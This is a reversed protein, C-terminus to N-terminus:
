AAEGESKAASKKRELVAVFFGDTDHRAPTLHMTQGDIGNPPEGGLAERWVKDLPVLVFDAHAALFNEVQRDNEDPLLSCTAYVLRGGPKVLRSAEALIGAQKVTLEDIDQQTLTWRADPNRRWTGTGSCPADVLVRDFSGASRKIWKRGTADLPRQTVNHVGARRLRTIARELRPASIDCAVLSGKNDMGAALALTKGGAGACFDVVRMGPRAGALLAVLQSGEDQIEVLGSKFAPGTVLPPRGTARLGLPSLRAPQIEIQEAKLAAMAQDRDGKLTNIRLDLPAPQRLAKYEAQWDAGFTQRLQPEIWDPINFRVADSQEPHDLGHGVVHSLVQREDHDLQEPKFREGDFNRQLRELSWAEHLALDAAVLLRGDPPSVRGGRQLWWTLQALRRLIGYVREAVERRDGSGIYRRDRFYAGVLADAPKRPNALIDDVLEISAQIRAGPTM